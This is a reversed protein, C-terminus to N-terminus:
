FEFGAYAVTSKIANLTRAYGSNYIKTKEAHGDKIFSVRATDDSLVVVAVCYSTEQSGCGAVETETTWTRTVAGLFDDYKFGFNKVLMEALRNM